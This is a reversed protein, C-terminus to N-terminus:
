QTKQCVMSHHKEKKSKIWIKEDAVRIKTGHQQKRRNRVGTNKDCYHGSAGSDLKWPQRYNGQDGLKDAEFGKYKNTTPIPTKELKQILMCITKTKVEGTIRNTHKRQVKKSGFHWWLNTFTLNKIKQNKENSTTCM